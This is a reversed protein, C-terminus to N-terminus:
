HFSREIEQHLHNCGVALEVLREGLGGAGTNKCSELTTAITLAAESAPVLHYASGAGLRELLDSVAELLNVFSRPLRSEGLLSRYVIDGGYYPGRITRYAQLSSFARLLAAKEELSPPTACGEESALACLAATLNGMEEVSRGLALWDAAIGREMSSRAIEYIATICQVGQRSFAPPFPTAASGPSPALGTPLENLLEWLEEPLEERVNRANLRASEISSRASLSNEGAELLWFLEGRPGLTPSSFPTRLARRLRELRAEGRGQGYEWCLPWYADALRITDLARTLYRSFWYFSDAKRFIM